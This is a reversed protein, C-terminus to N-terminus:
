KVLSFFDKLLSDWNSTLWKGNLSMEPSMIAHPKPEVHDLGLICHGLEHYILEKLALPHTDTVSLEDDIWIESWGSAKSYFTKFGANMSKQESFSACTGITGSDGSVSQGRALKEQDVDAVFKMVRLAELSSDKLVVGNILADAVFEDLYFQLRADHYKDPLKSAEKPKACGSSIILLLSFLLRNLMTLM